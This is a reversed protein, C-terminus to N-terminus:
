HFVPVLAELIAQTFLPNNAYFITSPIIQISLESYLMGAILAGYDDGNFTVTTTEGTEDDVLNM